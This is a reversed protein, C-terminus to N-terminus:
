PKRATIISYQWYNKKLARIQAWCGYYNELREKQFFFPAIFFAIPYNLVSLIELRRLSPRVHKTINEIHIDVFGADTLKKIYDKPELLPSMAWGDLWPQMLKKETINLPPNERVPYEAIVIRGQPKLVRYAEAFVTDRDPAHVLSEIAWYVDFSKDEFSMKSFDMEFIRAKDQQSRERIYRQGKEAHFPVLTVGTVDCGIHETLWLMSGGYGCGADLVRDKENVNVAQAVIENLRLVATRHNGADKDYYGFHIARDNSGSWLVRYDLRTANYYNIVKESHEM